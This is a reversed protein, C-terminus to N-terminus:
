AKKPGKRKTASRSKVAQKYLKPEWSEAVAALDVPVSTKPAFKKKAKAGQKTTGLLTYGGFLAVCILFLTSIIIQWEIGADKNTLTATENFFTKRYVVDSGETVFEVYGSLWFELPELGADPTFQYELSIQSVPPVLGGQVAKATFNQIYYNLDFPSHLSAGISTINLVEQGNNIFNVLFTTPKGVPLAKDAYEPLLYTTRVDAAVDEEEYEYADEVVEPAAREVNEDETIEVDEAFAVNNALMLALCLVSTRM